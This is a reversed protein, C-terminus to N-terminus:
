NGRLKEKINSKQIFEVFFSLFISFMFAVMGSLIVRKKMGRPMREEPVTARDIVQVIKKQVGLNFERNFYDLNDVYANAINASIQPSDTVVSLRILGNKEPTIKSIKKLVMRAASKFKANWIDKLNLQEIVKDAMGRSELVSIILDDINVGPKITFGESQVAYDVNMPFFTASAEYMKPKLLSSVAAFLVSILVIIVIMWRRKYIVKIYDILDIEDEYPPPQNNM